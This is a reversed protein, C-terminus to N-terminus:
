DSREENDGVLIYERNEELVRPGIGRVRMIEEPAEYRGHEERDRVIAAALAPGVGNLEEALTEADATNINVPGALLLGPAMASAVLLYLGKFPKRM